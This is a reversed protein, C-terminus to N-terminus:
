PAEEVEEVKDFSRTRVNWIYAEEELGQVQQVFVVRDYIPFSAARMKPNNNESTLFGIMRARDKVVREISTINADLTSGCRALLHMRKPVRTKSSDHKWILFINKQLNQQNSTQVKQIVSNQSSPHWVDDPFFKAWISAHEDEDPMPISQSINSSFAMNAIKKRIIKMGEPQYKVKNQKLWGDAWAIKQEETYNQYGDEWELLFDFDNKVQHAIDQMSEEKTQDGTDTNSTKGMDLLFRVKLKEDVNNGYILLPGNSNYGNKQALRHTFARHNGSGVYLIGNIVVGASPRKQKEGATYFRQFLNNIKDADEAGIRSQAKSYHKDGHHCLNSNFDYNLHLEVDLGLEEARKWISAQREDTDTEPDEMGHFEIAERIQMRDGTIVEPTIFKNDFECHLLNLILDANKLNPHSGITKQSYWGEIGEPLVDDIPVKSTEFKPNLRSIIKEVEMRSFFENDSDPMGIEKRIQNIKRLKTYKM